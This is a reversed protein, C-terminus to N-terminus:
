RAHKPHVLDRTRTGGARGSTPRSDRCRLDSGPGLVGLLSRIAESVPKLIEDDPLDPVAALATGTRASVARLADGLRRCGSAM